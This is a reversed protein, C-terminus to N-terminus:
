CGNNRRLVGLAQDHRTPVKRGFELAIRTNRERHQRLQALNNSTEFAFVAEIVERGAVVARRPILARDDLRFGRANVAEARALLESVVSQQGSFTAFHWSIGFINRWHSEPAFLAAVTERSRDALAADLAAIWREAVFEPRDETAPNLRDLM